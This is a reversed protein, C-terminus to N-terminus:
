RSAAAGPRLRPNTASVAHRLRSHAAEIHAPVHKGCDVSLFDRASDVDIQHQVFFAGAVIHGHRKKATSLLHVYLYLEAFSRHVSRTSAALTSLLFRRPRNVDSKRAAPRTAQLSRGLVTFVEKSSAAPRNRSACSRPLSDRAL